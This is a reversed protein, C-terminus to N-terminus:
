IYINHKHTFDVYYKSNKKYIIKYIAIKKVSNNKVVSGKRIIHSLPETESNYFEFSDLSKNYTIEYIDKKLVEMEANQTADNKNIKEIFGEKIEGITFEANFPTEELASMIRISTIDAELVVSSNTLLTGVQTGENKDYLEYGYKTKNTIKTGAPIRDIAQYEYQRSFLVTIDKPSTGYLEGNIVSTKDELESLKDGVTNENYQTSADYSVDNASMNEIIDADLTVQQKNVNFKNVVAM